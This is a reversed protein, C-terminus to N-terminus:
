VAQLGSIIVDLYVLFESVIEIEPQDVLPENNIWHGDPFQSEVFYDGVRLAWERYVDQKTIQYLLAAGWGTKCVQAVEFQRDTQQQSFAQYERALGLYAARPRALYLRALFAAAIGGVTFRQRPQQAEVVYLQADKTPFNTVLRQNQASYVFYLRNPLDPQLSWMQQLWMAVQEAADIDGTILCALGIGCNFPIDEQDAHEGSSDTHNVFAGSAPDVFERIYEMGQYSLDFQQLAHAGIVLMANAYLYHDVLPRPSIGVFDGSDGFQHQRIWECLRLASEREGASALAWPTRYYSFGKDPHGISGDFNVHRLLYEAGKRQALRYDRLKTELGTDM